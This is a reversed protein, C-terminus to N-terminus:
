GAGRRPGSLWGPRRKGSEATKAYHSAVNRSETVPRDLLLPIEYGCFRCVQAQRMILEACRPCPIRGANLGTNAPAPATHPEPNVLAWALAAVWGLLTWGLLLNVAVIAGQQRHKRVAAVISPFFYLGLVLAALEM